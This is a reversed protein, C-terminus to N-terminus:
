DARTASAFATAQYALSGDVVVRTTQQEASVVVEHGKGDQASQVIKRAGSEQHGM